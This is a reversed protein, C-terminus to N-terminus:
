NGKVEREANSELIARAQAAAVTKIKVGPGHRRLSALRSTIMISGHDAHPFYEKINYAQSDDRDTHDRDVNDVILLWRHNSSLSLWRLCERVAADADAISHGFAETGNAALENRPLRGMMGVFSQKLSTESSGDLWFIGSFSHQHKRAFEVALQTKGIGGMGHVVVVNRRSRTAVDHILLRELERM